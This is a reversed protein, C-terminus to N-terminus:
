AGFGVNLFVVVSARVMSISLSAILAEARDTRPTKGRVTVVHWLGLHM